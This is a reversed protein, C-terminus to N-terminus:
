RRNASRKFILFTQLVLSDVVSGDRDLNCLASQHGFQKKALIDKRLPFKNRNRSGYSDRQIQFVGVLIDLPELDAGQSKWPATM